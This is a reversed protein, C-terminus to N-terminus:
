AGGINWLKFDRCPFVVELPIENSKTNREKQVVSILPKSESEYLTTYGFDSGPKQDVICTDSKLPFGCDEEKYWVCVCARM